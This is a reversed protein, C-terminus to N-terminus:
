SKPWGVYLFFVRYNVLLWYKNSQLEEEFNPTFMGFGLKSCIEGIRYAQVGTIEEPDFKIQGDCVAKAAMYKSHVFDYFCGIM